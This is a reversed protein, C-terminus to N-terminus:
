RGGRHGRELVDALEALSRVRLCDVGAYLDAADLLVARLGAAWAGKVDIWYFDGVHLTTERRAGARELAVEFLRPDPKEVGELQSDLMVDFFRALGVREMVTHLRGNANSVVVLRPVAFRLRELAPVVDEPVLEWLNHEAHYAYLEELAADTEPSPAIRAHELVLNFYTWGRESDNGHPALDPVDLSRKAYPEAAALAVPSVRVGRAALADSIRQWNPVVLVGGADLFLTEIPPDTLSGLTTSTIRAPGSGDEPSHRTGSLRL